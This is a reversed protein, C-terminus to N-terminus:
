GEEVTDPLENRDDDRRPFHAALLDGTQRIADILADTFNEAKFHQQMAQVLQEWFADGCRQHIGEDGLVAFKQSRPAVFILVANRERTGTMKLKEFQARAAAVPDDIEGRKIYVRIEGSTKKEAEGIAETIRAHELKELFHKTRM